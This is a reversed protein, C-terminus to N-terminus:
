GVKSPHFGESDTYDLYAHIDTTLRGILSPFQLNLCNSAVLKITTLRGILSPFEAHM